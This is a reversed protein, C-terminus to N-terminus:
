GFGDLPLRSLGVTEELVIGIVGAEVELLDIRFLPDVGHPDTEMVTGHSPPDTILHDPEPDARVRLVVLNQRLISARAKSFRGSRGM